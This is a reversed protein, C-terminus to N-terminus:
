CITRVPTVDWGPYLRTTRNVYWGLTVGRSKMVLYEERTPMRWDTYGGYDCFTCYLMAEEYSMNNSSTPALVFM